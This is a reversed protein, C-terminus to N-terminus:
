DIIKGKADRTAIYRFAVSLDAFGPGKLSDPLVPVSLVTGEEPKLRLLLFYPWLVSDSSLHVVLGNDGDLALGSSGQNASEGSYQTLRIQGIGSIDIHFTKRYRGAKFVTVAASISAILSIQLRSVWSLENAGFLILVAAILAMSAVAYISLLLSRSPHVVVSVAVTM